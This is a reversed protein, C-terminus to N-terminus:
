ENLLVYLNEHDLPIFDVTESWGEGYLTVTANVPPVAESLNAIVSKGEADTASASLTVDLTEDYAIEWLESLIREEETSDQVSKLENMLTQARTQNEDLSSSPTCALGFVALLFLATISFFRKM